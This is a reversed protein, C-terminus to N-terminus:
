EWKKKSKKKKKPKEQEEGAYPNEEIFPNPIENASDRKGELEEKDSSDKSKIPQNDAQNPEENM